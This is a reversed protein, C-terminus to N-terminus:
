DRRPPAPRPALFRPAPRLLLLAGAVCYLLGVSAQQDRVALALGLLGLLAAATCSVRQLTVLRAPDTGPVSRRTFISAAALALAAVTYRRDVPGTEPESLALVGTALACAALVLLAAHRPRRLSAILDDPGTASV